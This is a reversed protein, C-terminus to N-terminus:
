IRPVLTLLIYTTFILASRISVIEKIDFNLGLNNIGIIRFILTNENEQVWCTEANNGQHLYKRPEFFLLYVSYKSLLIVM